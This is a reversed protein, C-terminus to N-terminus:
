SGGDLDIVRDVLRRWPGQLQPEPVTASLDGASVQYVYRDAGTVPKAPQDWPCDDILRCLEDSAQSDPPLEEVQVAWTRNLGALGGSRSVEVRM